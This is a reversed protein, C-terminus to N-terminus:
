FASQCRKLQCSGCFIVSIMRYPFPVMGPRAIQTAPFKGWTKFTSCRDLYGPQYDFTAILCGNHFIM